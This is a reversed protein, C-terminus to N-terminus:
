VCQGSFYPGALIGRLLRNPSPHLHLLWQRLEQQVYLELVVMCTFSRSICLKPTIMGSIHTPMPCVCTAQPTRTPPVISFFSCGRSVEAKSDCGDGCGRLRVGKEDIGCEAKAARRTHADEGQKTAAMIDCRGYGGHKHACTRVGVVRRRWGWTWAFQGVSPSMRHTVGHGGQVHGMGRSTGQGRQCAWGGRLTGDGDWGCGM